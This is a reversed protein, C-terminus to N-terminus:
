AELYLPLDIGEGFIADYELPIFRKMGSAPVFTLEGFYVLGQAYYLDVRVFPFPKSLKRALELMEELGEPKPTPTDLNPYGLRVPLRTWLPDYIDRRHDTFRGSDLQIFRAIGNYCFFKYDRIEGSSDELLAEVLIRGKLPKYNAEGYKFYYNSALWRDLRKRARRWDWSAKETVLENWGCGHTAKIVFRNPLAELPIDEPRAYVGLLPVLYREGICDRVYARVSEKDTWSAFRELRGHVKLWQMKESFTRPNELSLRYGMRKEFRRELCNAYGLLRWRAERSKQAALVQLHM